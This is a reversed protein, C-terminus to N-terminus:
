AVFVLLCVLLLVGCLLRSFGLVLCCYLVGFPAWWSILWRFLRLLLLSLLVM